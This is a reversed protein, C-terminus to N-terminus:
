VCLPDPLSNVLKMVIVNFHTDNYFNIPINVVLKYKVIPDLIM